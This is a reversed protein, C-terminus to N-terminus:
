RRDIHRKCKTSRKSSNMSIAATSDLIMSVTWPRSADDSLLDMLSMQEYACTMFGGSLGMTEFEATSNPIPQLVFLNADIVGGQIFGLYCCTSQSEDCDSHSADTFWIISSAKIKYCRTYLISNWDKYFVIANSPHCRLHHLFHRIAQFHQGGPLNM